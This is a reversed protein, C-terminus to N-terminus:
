CHSFVLLHCIAATHALIHADLIVLMGHVFAIVRRFEPNSPHCSRLRRLYYIDSGTAGTALKETKVEDLEDIVCRYVEPHSGSHNWRGYMMLKICTMDVVFTASETVEIPRTKAIVAKDINPDLLIQLIRAATYKHPPREFIPIGLSNRYIYMTDHPLAALVSYHVTYYHTVQRNYETHM